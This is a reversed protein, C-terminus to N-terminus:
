MDEDMPMGRYGLSLTIRRLATQTSPYEVNLRDVITLLSQFRDRQKQLEGDLREPTKCLSGYKNEKLSTYYKVRQQKTVIEAM